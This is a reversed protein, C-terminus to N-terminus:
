GGARGQNSGAWGKFGVVAAASEGYSSAIGWAADGLGLPCKAGQGQGADGGFGKRCEWHCSQEHLEPEAAMDVYLSTNSSAASEEVTRVIWRTRAFEV